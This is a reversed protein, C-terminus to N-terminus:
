NNPDHINRVLWRRMRAWKQAGTEPERSPYNWNDDDNLFEIEAALQSAIGVLQGVSQPDEVDIRTVDLGRRQCVAGILCVGGEASILENSILEKVPMADMAALAERLFSQGRKGNITRAVTARYLGLQRSDFDCDEVYGSRSMGREKTDIYM